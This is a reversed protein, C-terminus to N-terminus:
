GGAHFRAVARLFDERSLFLPPMPEAFAIVVHRPGEPIELQGPPPLDAWRGLYLARRPALDFRVWLPGGEWVEGGNVLLYEGDRPVAERIGEVAEVYAPGHVRLRAERPEEGAVAAVHFWRRAVQFSSNALASAFFAALLGLAALRFALFVASRM